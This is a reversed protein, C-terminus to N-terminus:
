GPDDSVEAPGGTGGVRWLGAETYIGAVRRDRANAPVAEVLQFAFGVGFVRPLDGPLSRDYWGGGRGLRRGARDFAVGPILVLDDPSLRASPCSPAPELTGFSGEILAGPERVSAFELRGASAARPLLLVRGTELVVHLLGETPVEDALAAYLAVRRAQQFEPSATVLREVEVGAARRAEPDLSRRRVRMSVRLRM